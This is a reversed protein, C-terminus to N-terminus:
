IKATVIRRHSQEFYFSQEIRVRHDLHFPDRVQHLLIMWLAVCLNVFFFTLRRSGKYTKTSSKEHLGLHDTKWFPEVHGLIEEVAVQGRPTAGLNAQAKTIFLQGIPLNHLLRIAGTM